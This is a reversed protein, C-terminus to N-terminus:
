LEATVAAQDSGGPETDERPVAQLGALPIPAATENRIGQM